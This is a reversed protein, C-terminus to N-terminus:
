LFPFGIQLSTVHASIPPMMPSTVINSPQHVNRRYVRLTEQDLKKSALRAQREAELQRIM